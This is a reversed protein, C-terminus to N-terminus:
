GCLLFFSLLLNKFFIFRPIMIFINPSYANLIISLSFRFYYINFNKKSCPYYKTCHIDYVTFLFSIPFYLKTLLKQLLIIGNTTYNRVNIPISDIGFDTHKRATIPIRYFHETLNPTRYIPIHHYLAPLYIPSKLM